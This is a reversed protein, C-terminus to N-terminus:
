QFFFFFSSFSFFIEFLFFSDLVLNKILFFVLNLRFCIICCSLNHFDVSQAIEVDDRLLTSNIYSIPHSIQAILILLITINTFFVFVNSKCILFFYYFPLLQPYVDGAEFCLMYLRLLLHM